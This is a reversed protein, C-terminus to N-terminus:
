LFACGRARYATMPRQRDGLYLRQGTRVRRVSASAHGGRVLFQDGGKLVAVNGGEVRQNATPIALDLPRDVTDEARVLVRAVQALLDEELRVAGEAAEFLLCAERGPEVLDGEVGAAVPQPPPAAPGLQAEVVQAVPALLEHLRAGRGEIEHLRAVERPGYLGGHRRQGDLLALHDRELLVLSEREDLDRFSEVHGDGRHLRPEVAAQALQALLELAAPDSAGRGDGGRHWSVPSSATISHLVNRSSM